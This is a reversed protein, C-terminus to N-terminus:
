DWRPAVGTKKSEIFRFLDYEYIGGTKEINGTRRNHRQIIPATQGYMWENFEDIRNDFGFETLVIKVQNVSLGEHYNLPEQKRRKHRAM